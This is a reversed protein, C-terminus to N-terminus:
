RGIFFSAPHVRQAHPISAFVISSYLVRAVHRTCYTGSLFGFLRPPSYSFLLDDKNFSAQENGQEGPKSPKSPEAPSISAPEIRGLYMYRMGASVFARADLDITMAVDSGVRGIERQDSQLVRAGRPFWVVKEAKDGRRGQRGVAGEM